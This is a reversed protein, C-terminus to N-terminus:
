IEPSINYYKISESHVTKWLKKSFADTSSEAMDSRM